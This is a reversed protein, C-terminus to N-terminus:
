GWRMLVRPLLPIPFCPDHGSHSSDLGATERMRLRREDYSDSFATFGLGKIQCPPSEFAHPREEAGVAM